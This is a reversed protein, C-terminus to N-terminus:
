FTRQVAGNGVVKKSNIWHCDEVNSPDMKVELKEFIKLVTSELANNDSTKPIGTM